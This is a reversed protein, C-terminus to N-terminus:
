TPHPPQPNIATQFLPNTEGPSQEPILRGAQHLSQIYYQEYPLLLSPYNLPKLLTMTSNMQGYEHQNQLIHLAYASQPNNYRIYQIHEQFRINLSRSTQGVYSLNCTNSTLQYIGWKNHPPTHLDRPPKTLNAITNRCKYAIKINTNRFINTVKRIQQSIYTFTAWKKNKNDHPSPHETKHVTQHRVKHIVPPPFGNRQSIHLITAWERKQQSTKLPLNLM